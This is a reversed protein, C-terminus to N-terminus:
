WWAVFGLRAWRLYWCIRIKVIFYNLVRHSSCYLRSKVFRLKVFLRSKLYSIKHGFHFKENFHRSKDYLRSKLFSLIGVSAM